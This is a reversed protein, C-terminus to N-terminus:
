NINKIKLKKEKNKFYNFLTNYVSFTLRYIYLILRKHICIFRNILSSLTILKFKNM